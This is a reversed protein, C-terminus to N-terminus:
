LPLLYVIQKICIYFMQLILVISTGLWLNLFKYFAFTWWWGLHFFSRTWFTLVWVCERLLIIFFSFYLSYAFNCGVRRSIISLVGPKNVNHLLLWFSKLVKQISWKCNVQFICNSWHDLVYNSRSFKLSAKKVRLSGRFLGKMKIQLSHKREREREREREGIYDFCIHLFHSCRRHLHNSNQTVCFLM